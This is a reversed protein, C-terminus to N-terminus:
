QAFDNRFIYTMCLILYINVSEFNLYFDFLLIALTFTRTKVHLIPTYNYLKLKFFNVFTKEYFDKPMGEYMKEVHICVQMRNRHLIRPISM